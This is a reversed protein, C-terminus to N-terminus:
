VRCRRLTWRAIPSGADWPVPVCTSTQPHRCFSKGCENTAIRTERRWCTSHSVYVLFTPKSLSSDSSLMRYCLLM